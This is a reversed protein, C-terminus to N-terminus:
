LVCQGMEHCIPMAIKFKVPVKRYLKHFSCLSNLNAHVQINTQNMKCQLFWDQAKSALVVNKQCNNLDYICTHKCPYLSSIRHSFSCFSNLRFTHWPFSSIIIERPGESNVDGEIMHSINCLLPGSNIEFSGLPFLPTSSHTSHAVILCVFILSEEVSESESNGNRVSLSKGKKRDSTRWEGNGRSM